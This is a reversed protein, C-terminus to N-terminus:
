ALGQNPISTIQYLANLNRDISFSALKIEQYVLSGPKSYDPHSLQVGMLSFVGWLSYVEDHPKSSGRRRTLELPLM